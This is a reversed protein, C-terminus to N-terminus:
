GRADTGRKKESSDKKPKVRWTRRTRRTGVEAASTVLEQAMMAVLEATQDEVEFWQTACGPNPMTVFTKMQTFGFFAKYGFVIRRMGNAHSNESWYELNHPTQVNSITFDKRLKKIRIAVADQYILVLVRHSRVFRMGHPNGRPFAQELRGRIQPHLFQALEGPAMRCFDPDKAEIRAALSNFAESVCRWLIPLVPRLRDHLQEFAVSEPLPFLLLQKTM